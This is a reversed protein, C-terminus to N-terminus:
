AVPHRNPKRPGDAIFSSFALRYPDFYMLRDLSVAPLEATAFSAQSALHCYGCDPHVKFPSDQQDAEDQSAQHQHGHHGFHSVPEQEHECYAAAAAWSFQFPLLALLFILILKKVIYINARSKHVSDGEFRKSYAIGSRQGADPPHLNM